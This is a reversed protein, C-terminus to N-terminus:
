FYFLFISSIFDDNNMVLVADGAGGAHGAPLAPFNGNKVEQSHTKVTADEDFINFNNSIENNNNNFVEIEACVDM